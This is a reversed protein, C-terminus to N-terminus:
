LSWVGLYIGPFTVSKPYRESTGLSQRCFFFPFLDTNRRAFSEQDGCFPPQDEQLFQRERLSPAESRWPVM